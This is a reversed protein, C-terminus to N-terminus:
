RPARAQWGRGLRGPRGGRQLRSSAVSVTTRMRTLRRGRGLVLRPAFALAFVLTNRECLQPPRTSCARTRRKPRAECRRPSTAQYSSPLPCLLAGSAYRVTAIARAQHAAKCCARFRTSRASLLSPFLQQLQHHPASPPADARVAWADAAIAFGAIPPPLLRQSAGALFRASVAGPVGDAVLSGVLLLQRPRVVNPMLNVRVVAYALNMPV